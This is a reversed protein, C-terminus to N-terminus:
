PSTLVQELTANEGPQLDIWRTVLGPEICVYHRYADDPLDALAKAKEIWPNWFVVDTGSHDLPPGSLKPSSINAPVSAHSRVSLFDETCASNTVAVGISEDSSSYIRDVEQDM